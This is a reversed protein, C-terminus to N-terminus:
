HLRHCGPDCPRAIPRQSAHGFSGFRISASQMVSASTLAVASRSPVGEMSESSRARWTSCPAGSNGPNVAADTQICDAYELITQAPYQYRNVGSVIGLSISPQRNTALGFPNGASFCQQGARVLSSDGMPATPFDERGLLQILSVDGVADIGVIVADVMMGDSLGCRMHDGCASTVHYNTLAFGDPSIIVGSGGGGGDLGFISITAESARRMVEIRNAEAKLVSQDIAINEASLARRFLLGPHGTVTVAIALLGWHLRCSHTTGNLLNQDKV